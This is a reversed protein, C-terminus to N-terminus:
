LKVALANIIHLEAFVHGSVRTVDWRARDTGVGAKFQVIASVEQGPHAAAIRAIRPDLVATSGSPVPATSAVSQLAPPQWHHLATGTLLALVASVVLATMWRIRDVTGISSTM